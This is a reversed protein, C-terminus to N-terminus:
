AARAPVDVDVKCTTQTGCLASNATSACSSGADCQLAPKSRSHTSEENAAAAAVAAAAAPAALFPESKDFQLLAPMPPPPPSSISPTAPMLEENEKPPNGPGPSGIAGFETRFFRKNNNKQFRTEFDNSSHPSFVEIVTYGSSMAASIGKFFCGAAIWIKSVHALLELPVM